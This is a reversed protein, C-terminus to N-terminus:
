KKRVYFYFRQREHEASPISDIQLLIPVLWFSPSIVGVSGFVKPHYLGAYFSILGGLSSGAISTHRVRYRELIKILTHNLYKWWFRLYIKGL